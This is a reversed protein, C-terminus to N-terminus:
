CMRQQNRLKVTERRGLDDDQGGHRHGNRIEDRDERHLIQHRQLEVDHLQGHVGAAQNKQLSQGNAAFTFHINTVAPQYLGDYGRLYIVIYSIYGFYVLLQLPHKYKM